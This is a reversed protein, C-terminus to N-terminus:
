GVSAMGARLFATGICRISCMQEGGDLRDPMDISSGNPVPVYRARNAHGCSRERGEDGSGHRSNTRPQEPLKSLKVYTYRGAPLVFRTYLFVKEKGRM